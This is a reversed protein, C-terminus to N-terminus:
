LATGWSGVVSTGVSTGVDPGVSTGVSTGVMESFAGLSATIVVRTKSALTLSKAVAACTATGGVSATSYPTGASRNWMTLICSALKEMSMRMREDSSPGDGAARASLMAASMGVPRSTNLQLPVFEAWAATPTGAALKAEIAFIAGATGVVPTDVPGPETPSALRTGTTATLTLDLLGVGAGELTGRTAPRVPNGM